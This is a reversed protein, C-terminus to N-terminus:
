LSVPGTCWAAAQCQRFCLPPCFGARGGGQPRDPSGPGRQRRGGSSGVHRPPSPFSGPARRDPCQQATLLVAIEANEAAKSQPQAVCSQGLPSNRFPFLLFPSAPLQPRQPSAPAAGRSGRAPAPPRPCRPVPLRRRPRWPLNAQARRARLTGRLLLSLPCRALPSRPATALFTIGGEREPVTIPARLRGAAAPSQKGPSTSSKLRVSPLHRWGAGEARSTRAPRAGRQGTRAPRPMERAFQGYLLERQASSDSNIQIRVTERIPPQIVRIGPAARSRHESLRPLEHRAGPFSPEAAVTARTTGLSSGTSCFDM